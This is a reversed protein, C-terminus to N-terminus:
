AEKPLQSRLTDLHARSSAIYRDLETHDWGNKIKHQLLLEAVMLREEAGAIRKQLKSRPPMKTFRGLEDRLQLM